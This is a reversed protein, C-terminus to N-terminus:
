GQINFLTGIVSDCVNKEVNMVDICHRIDLDVWYPLDFLISRKKWICTKNKDKKQIKGFITNLHQVRQYVQECCYQHLITSKVEM